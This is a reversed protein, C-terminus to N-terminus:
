FFAMSIVGSLMILKCFNSLYNFSKRSDAKVLQYIFYVMPISLVLFYHNLVQNNVELMFLTLILMFGFILFYIFFKTRRIGWVVPLTRCGFNADGKLDELDKIVERILTIAFAFISYTAVLKLNHNYLIGTILISMGTLLGIVFNGVFPLRKLQNSYLWLLFVSIFHILAIKLGLFLCTLLAIANFM